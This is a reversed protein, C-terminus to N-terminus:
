ETGKEEGGKKEESEKSVRASGMLAAFDPIVSLITDGSYAAGILGPHWKAIL